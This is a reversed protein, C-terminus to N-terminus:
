SRKLLKKMQTLYIIIEEAGKDIAEDVLINVKVKLKKPKVPLDLDESFEFVQSDYTSGRFGQIRIRMFEDSM